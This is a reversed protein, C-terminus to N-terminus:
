QNTSRTPPTAPLGILVDIGLQEQLLATLHRGEIIEIRGNRAPVRRWPAASSRTACGSALIGVVAEFVILLGIFLLQNPGVVSRWTDTV